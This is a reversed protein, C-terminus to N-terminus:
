DVRIVGEDIPTLVRPRPAPRDRDLVAIAQRGCPECCYVPGRGGHRRSRDDNTRARRDSGQNSSTM